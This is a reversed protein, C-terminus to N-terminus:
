VVVSNSFAGQIELYEEAAASAVPSIHFIKQINDPADYVEPIYKFVLSSLIIGHSLM